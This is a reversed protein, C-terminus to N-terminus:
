LMARPHAQIYASKVYNNSITTYIQTSSVHSHGLLLQVDRLRANGEILHTAFAHRFSHPSICTHELNAAKAYKKVSYFVAQRTMKEGLKNCFLYCSSQDLCLFYTRLVDMVKLTLPVVRFRAGKGEVRITMLDVDVDDVKINICESVRLGVSYLCELLVRDRLGFFTNVDPQSLLLDVHNVDLVYPLRHINKIKPFSLAVSDTLVGENILYNSFSHVVSVKRNVTSDKYGQDNLWSVYFSLMERFSGLHSVIKEFQRLDFDYSRCTHESFQCEVQCFLLFDSIFQLSDRNKNLSM